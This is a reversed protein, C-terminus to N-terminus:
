VNGEVKCGTALGNFCQNSRSLKTAELAEVLNGLSLVM